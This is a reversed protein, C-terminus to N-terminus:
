FHCYFIGLSLIFNTFIAVALRKKNEITSKLNTYSYLDVIYFVVLWVLLLILFPFLYSQLRTFIDKIGYRFLLMSYLSLYFAIIDGLLVMKIKHKNILGKLM